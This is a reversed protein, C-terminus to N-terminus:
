PQPLDEALTGTKLQEVAGGAISNAERLNRGDASWLVPGRHAGDIARVEVTYRGRYAFKNVIFGLFGIEGPVTSTYGVAAPASSVLDKMGGKPLARVLYTLGAPAHVVELAAFAMSRIIGSGSVRSIEWRM